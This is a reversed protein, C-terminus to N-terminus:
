TSKGMALVNIWLQADQDVEGGGHAGGQVRAWGTTPANPLCICIGISVGSEGSIHVMHVKLVDCFVVYRVGSGRM